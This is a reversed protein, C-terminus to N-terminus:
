VLLESGLSGGTCAFKQIVVRAEASGAGVVAPWIWTRTPVSMEVTIFAATRQRAMGYASFSFLARTAVVLEHGKKNEVNAIFTAAFQHRFEFVSLSM